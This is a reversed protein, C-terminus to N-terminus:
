GHPPAGLAFDPPYDDAFRTQAELDTQRKRLTDVKEKLQAEQPAERLAAEAERLQIRIELYEKEQVLSQRVLLRCEGGGKSDDYFWTSM